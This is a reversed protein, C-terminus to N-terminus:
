IERGGTGGNRRRRNTVLLDLEEMIGNVLAKARESETRTLMYMCIRKIIYLLEDFSRGRRMIIRLALWDAFRMLM